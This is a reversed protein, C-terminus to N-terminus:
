FNDIICKNKVLLKKDTKTLSIEDMLNKAALVSEVIKFDDNEKETRVIEFKTKKVLESIQEFKEFADNPHHLSIRNVM